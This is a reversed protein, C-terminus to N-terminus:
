ARRTQRLRARARTVNREVSRRSHGTAASIEVYTLGALHLSFIRMQRATLAGIRELAERAEVTLEPDVRRDQCASHTDAHDEDLSTDRGQVRVLRIAERTAVVRLWAFITDREPQTRLLQVWAIACAEEAIHESVGLERRVARVLRQAYREFLATEDGRQGLGRDASCGSV